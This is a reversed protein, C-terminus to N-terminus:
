GIDKDPIIHDELDGADRESIVKGKLSVGAKHVSNPDKSLLPHWPFLDKGEALLRYACTGPLWGFDKIDDYKLITCDHVLRKREPYNKCRFSDLDLLRCAVNTFAIEGTEIDELKNLCCKGCGDCLSEWQDSSMENLPVSQWFPKPSTM